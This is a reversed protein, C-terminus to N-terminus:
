HESFAEPKVMDATSAANFLAQAIPIMKYVTIKLAKPRIM